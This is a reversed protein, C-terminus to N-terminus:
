KALVSYEGAGIIVVKQETTGRANGADVGGGGGGECGRKPTDM